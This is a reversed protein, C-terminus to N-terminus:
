ISEIFADEENEPVSDIVHLALFNVIEGKLMAPNIDMGVSEAKALLAKKTREGMADELRSLRVAKAAEAEAEQMDEETEMGDDTEQIEDVAVPEDVVVASLPKPRGRMDKIDEASFKKAIQPKLATPRGSPQAFPSAPATAALSTKRRMAAEQAQSLDLKEAKVARQHFQGATGADDAPVVLAIGENVWSEIMDELNSGNQIEIPPSTFGPELTMGLFKLTAGGVKSLNRVRYKM